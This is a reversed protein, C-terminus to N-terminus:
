NPAGLVATYAKNIRTMWRIFSNMNNLSFVTCIYRVMQQDTKIKEPAEVFPEIARNLYGFMEKAVKTLRQCEFDFYAHTTIKEKTIIVNCVDQITPKTVVNPTNFSIHKISKAKNILQQTRPKENSHLVSSDDDSDLEITDRRKTESAPVSDFGDDSKSINM